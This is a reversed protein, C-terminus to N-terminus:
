EEKLEETKVEIFFEDKSVRRMGVTELKQEPWDRMAEKDVAEKVRVADDFGYDKLKELVMALTLKPLTLLKTSRRFGIVGHPRELSRRRGFLETKNLEGFTALAAGLEKRRAQLPAARNGAATKIQDVKENMGAEIEALDRELRALETLAADAQKLDAIVLARPKSRPM